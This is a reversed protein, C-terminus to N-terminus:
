EYRRPELQIEIFEEPFGKEIEELIETFSKDQEINKHSYLGKKALQIEIPDSPNGKRVSSFLDEFNKPDIEKHQKSLGEQLSTYLEGKRVEELQVEQQELREKQKLLATKIFKSM